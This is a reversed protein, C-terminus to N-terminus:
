ISFLLRRLAIERLLLYRPISCRRSSSTFNFHVPLGTSNLHILLLNFLVFSSSTLRWIDSYGELASPFGTYTLGYDM